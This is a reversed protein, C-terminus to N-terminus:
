STPSFKTDTARRDPPFVRQPSDGHLPSVPCQNLRDSTEHPSLDELYYRAMQIFDNMVGTLQRNKVPSFTVVMLEPAIFQEYAFAHGAQALYTQLGSTVTKILGSANAAGRGLMVVSFYTTAQTVLLYRHRDFTFAHCCWDACPHGASPVEAPLEVRVRGALKQTLRLTLVQVVSRWGVGLLLSEWGQASDAQLTGVVGRNTKDRIGEKKFRGSEAVALAGIHM